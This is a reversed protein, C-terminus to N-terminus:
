NVPPPADAGSDMNLQKNAAIQENFEDIMSQISSRMAPERKVLRTLHALAKELNGTAALAKSGFYLADSNNPYTKLIEESKEILEQLKDQEWLKALDGQDQKEQKKLIYCVINTFILVGFLAMLGWLQYQILAIEREM